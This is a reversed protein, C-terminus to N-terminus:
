NASVQIIARARPHQVSRCIYRGAKDIALLQTEGRALAPHDGNSGPDPTCRIAHAVGSRNVVAFNETAVLALRAPTIAYGDKITLTPKTAGCGSEGAVTVQFLGRRPATTSRLTFTGRKPFQIVQREQRGLVSTVIGATPTFVLAHAAGSTNTVALFGGRKITLRRPSFSFSSGEAGPSLAIQVKTAKTCNPDVPDAAASGAKGNGAQENDTKGPDASATATATPIPTPALARAVPADEAPVPDASSDASAGAGPLTAVPTSPACATVALMVAAAFGATWLRRAKM